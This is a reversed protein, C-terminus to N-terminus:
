RSVSAMEIDNSTKPTNRCKKTAYYAVAGIAVTTLAIGTGIGVNDSFTKSFKSESHAETGNGILTSNPTIESQKCRLDKSNYFFQKCM